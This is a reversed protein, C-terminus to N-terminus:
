LKCVSVPLVHLWYIELRIGCIYDVFLQDAVFRMYHRTMKYQNECQQQIKHQQHHIAKTTIHENNPQIGKM